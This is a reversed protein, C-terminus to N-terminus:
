APAFSTSLIRWALFLIAALAVIVINGALRAKRETAHLPQGCAPCTKAEASIQRACAPCAVLQMARDSQRACHLTLFFRRGLQGPRRM